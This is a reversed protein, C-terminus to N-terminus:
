LVTYTCGDSSSDRTQHSIFNHRASATTEQTDAWGFNVAITAPLCKAVNLNRRESM